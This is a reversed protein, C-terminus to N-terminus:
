MLQPGRPDVPLISREDEGNGCLICEMQYVQFEGEVKFTYEHQGIIHGCCLCVHQYTVLEIGNEDETCKRNEIRVIELKRCEACGAFNRLFSGNDLCMNEREPYEEKVCGHCM